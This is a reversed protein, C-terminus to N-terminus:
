YFATLYALCGRFILKFPLPHFGSLFSSQSSSLWSVLVVSVSPYVNKQTPQALFIPDWNGTTLCIKYFLVIQYFPKLTWSRMTWVRYIWIWSRFLDRELDKRTAYIQDEVNSQSWRFHRFETEQQSLRASCIGPATHPTSASRASRRRTNIYESGPPQPSVSESWATNVNVQGSEIALLVWCRLTARVSWILLM